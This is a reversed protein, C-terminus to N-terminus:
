TVMQNILQHYLLNVSVLLTSLQYNNYMIRIYHYTVINLLNMHKIKIILIINTLCSSKL